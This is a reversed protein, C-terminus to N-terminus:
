SYVRFKSNEVALQLIKSETNEGSGAVSSLSKEEHSKQREEPEMAAKNHERTHRPEVESGVM